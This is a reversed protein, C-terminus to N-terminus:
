FSVELDSQVCERYVSYTDGSDGRRLICISPSRGGTRTSIVPTIVIEDQNGVLSVSPVHQLQRFEFRVNDLGSAVSELDRVVSISAHIKSIASGGSGGYASSGARVRSAESDPNLLGVVVTTLDGSRMRDEILDSVAVALVDNSSIGVIFLTTSRRVFAAFDIERRSAVIRGEGASAGCSDVAASIGELKEYLPELTDLRMAAESIVSLVSSTLLTAGLAVLLDRGSGRGVLLGLLMFVWGALFILSAIYVTKARLLSRVNGWGNENAM